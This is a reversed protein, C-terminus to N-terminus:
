REGCRTSAWSGGTTRLADAHWGRHDIFEARLLSVASACATCLAAACSLARVAHYLIATDETHGAAALATRLTGIHHDMFSIAAKYARRTERLKWDPLPIWPSPSDATDHFAISPANEPFTKYAPLSVDELPFKEFYEPPAQFPLHPKHLGVGLFFAKGSAAALKMYSEARATINLDQYPVNGCYTLGGFGGKMSAAAFRKAGGTEQPTLAPTYNTPPVLPAAPYPGPNGCGNLEIPNFEPGSCSGLSPNDLERCTTNYNWDLCEPSWSNDGDYNPPLNPHYLKGTALSLHDNAKFIQPLSQWTDGVGIERFHDAFDFVRTVDPRRGTMFSRPPLM